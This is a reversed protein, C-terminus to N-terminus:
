VPHRGDGADSPQSTAVLGGGLAWGGPLDTPAVVGLVVASALAIVLVAGAAVLLGLGLLALMATRLPNALLMM